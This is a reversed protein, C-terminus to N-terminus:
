GWREHGWEKGENSNTTTPIWITLSKRPFDLKMSTFFGLSHKPFWHLTSLNKNQEHRLLAQTSRPLCIWYLNLAAIFFRLPLRELSVKVLLLALSFGLTERSDCNFSFGSHSKRWFGKLNWSKNLVKSAQEATFFSVHVGMSSLIGLDCAAKPAFPRAAM